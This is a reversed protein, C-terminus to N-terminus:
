EEKPAEYEIVTEEGMQVRITAPYDFAAGTGADVAAGIVGQPSARGAPGNRKTGEHTGGKKGNSAITATSM